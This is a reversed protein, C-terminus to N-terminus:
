ALELLQPLDLVSLVRDRYPTTSQVFTGRGRQNAVPVPDLAAPDIYLIDHLEDISIGAVVEGIQAVVAQSHAAARRPLNLALRLDVLTMIEGRLNMNGIIRLPACPVPQINQTSIFERVLSLKLGFYEGSLDFVALPIRQSDDNEQLAVRLEQARAQLLQRQAPTATPFYRDYFDATAQMATPLEPMETPEMDTEGSWVWDAVEDALSLLATPNLIMVNSGDLNTLGSLFAPNAQGQRGFALDKEIAEALILCVESTRDVVLGARQNDTAIMIVTDSARCTPPLKSVRQGLHMVPLLSGHLNITGLIDTPTDPLTQLEPLPFIERVYDTAIAFQLQQLHCILYTQSNM